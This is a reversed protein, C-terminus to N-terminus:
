RPWRRADLKLRFKPLTAIVMMPKTPALVVRNRNAVEAIIENVDM